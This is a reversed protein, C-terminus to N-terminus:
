CWDTTRRGVYPAGLGRNILTKAMNQGDIYVDVLARGYYGHIGSRVVRVDDATAIWENVYNRVAIGFALEAECKPSHIEPTDVGLLRLPEGALYCTDGDYCYLEAAELTTKIVINIGIFVATIILVELLFKHMLRKVYNHTSSRRM